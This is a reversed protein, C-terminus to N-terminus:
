GAGVDARRSRRRRARVRRPRRWERPREHDADAARADLPAAPDYRPALGRRHHRVLPRRQRSALASWVENQALGEATTYRWTHGTAPDVQIIGSATGLYFRGSADEVMCRVPAGTLSRAVRTDSCWAARRRITSAGSQATRGSSGSGARRIWTFRASASRRPRARPDSSAITGTRSCAQRRFGSGSSGRQAEVISPPSVAPRSALHPLGDAAGYIRFDDTARRWRVLRVHDPLQAILWVDGRADEFMPFVDSSPLGHSRRM